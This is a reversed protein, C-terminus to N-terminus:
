ALQESEAVPAGSVKERAYPVYPLYRKLRNIPHEMFHWSLWAVIVTTASGLLLNLPGQERYQVGLLGFAHIYIAPVFHHYVYIGYSITGLFVLPRWTLIAGPFGTFGGAAMGVLWCFVLAALSDYLIWFWGSSMGTDFLVNVIVAGLLGVPLVIKTLYARIKVKPYGSEFVLALLAGLALSDVSAFTFADTAIDNFHNIVAYARYLPGLLIMALLAAPLGKRRVFLVLWPWVIYFQEETALSWFHGFRLASSWHGQLSVYINLSYTVLWAFIERAPPVNLAFGTLIVFYYLPFIRLFRRLYFQRIFFWPSHQMSEATVRCRLLIGTILFGSLVFFLRVGLFGTDIRSLGWPLRELPWYHALLVGGVAFARLADLQPMHDSERSRPRTSSTVPGSHSPAEAAGVPRDAVGVDAGAAGTDRSGEQARVNM